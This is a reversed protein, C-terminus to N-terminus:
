PSLSVTSHEKLFEALETQGFKIAWDAAISSDAAKIAPDAGQSVLLTAVELNGKAAAVM